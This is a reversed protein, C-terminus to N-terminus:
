IRIVEIKAKQEQERTDLSEARRLAEGIDAYIERLIDVHLLIGMGTPNGDRYTRIDIYAGRSWPMVSVRVETKFAHKMYATPHPVRCVLEKCREMFDYDLRNRPWFNTRQVRTMKTKPRPAARKGLGSTKSFSRRVDKPKDLSM